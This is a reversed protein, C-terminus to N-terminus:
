IHILSLEVDTDCNDTASVATSASPIADCEVTEDAPVGALIPDTTDQVTVIQTGISTNGCNDTATWERTLTYSDACPGDLRTENYTIEM